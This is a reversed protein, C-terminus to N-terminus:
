KMTEVNPGTVLNNVTFSKTSNRIAGVYIDLPWERLDNKWRQSYKM